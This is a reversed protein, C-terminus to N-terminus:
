IRNPYEGRRALNDAALSGRRKEGKHIGHSPECLGLWAKRYVLAVSLASASLRSPNLERCGNFQLRQMCERNTEIVAIATILKRGIKDLVLAL